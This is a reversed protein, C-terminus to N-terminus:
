FLSPQAANGGNPMTFGFHRYAQATAMRASVAFAVGIATVAVLASIRIHRNM